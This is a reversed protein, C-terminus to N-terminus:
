TQQLNPLAHIQITQTDRQALKQNIQKCPTNKHLIIPLVRADMMQHHTLPKTKGSTTVM